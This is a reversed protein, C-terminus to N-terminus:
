FSSIRFDQYSYEEVEAKLYHAIDYDEGELMDLWHRVVISADAPIKTYRFLERLTSSELARRDLIYSRPFGCTDSGATKHLLKMVFNVWMEEGRGHERLAMYLASCLCNDFELDNPYLGQSILFDAGERPGEYQSYCGSPYGTVFDDQVATFVVLTNVFRHPM